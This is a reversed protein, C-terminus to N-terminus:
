GGRRRNTGPIAPETTRKLKPPKCAPCPWHTKAAAELKIAKLSTSGTDLKPCSKRHYYKPGDVFVAISPQAKPTPSPRSRPNAPDCDAHPKYGRAEAQARTLALVGVGSSILPCGARHYLKTGEKYIVLESQAAVPGASVLM